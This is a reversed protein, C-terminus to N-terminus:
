PFRVATISKRPLRSLVDRSPYRAARFTCTRHSLADRTHAFVENSSLGETCAHLLLLREVQVSRLSAAQLGHLKVQHCLCQMCVAVSYTHLRFTSDLIKNVAVIYLVTLLNLIFNVTYDEELRCITRYSGSKVFLIKCVKVAMEENVTTEACLFFAKSSAKCLVPQERPILIAYNECKPHRM